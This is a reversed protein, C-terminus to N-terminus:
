RVAFTYAGSMEHDDAGARWSVQYGGPELTETLPIEVREVAKTPLKANIDIREMADTMLQVSKPVMPHEFELVLKEVKGKVIEGNAPVSASVGKMGGHHGHSSGHDHGQALAPAALLAATAFGLAIIRTKLM